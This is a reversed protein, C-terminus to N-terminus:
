LLTAKILTIHQRHGLNRMYNKRRKFKFVPVKKAKRHELVTCLVEGSNLRIDNDSLLLPQVSFTSGIDYSLRDVSLTTEGKVKFQKGGIAIIAFKDTNSM